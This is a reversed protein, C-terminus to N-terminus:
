ARRDVYAAAVRTATRSVHRLATGVSARASAVEGEFARSARLLGEARSRLTEPLPGLTDLPTPMREIPREVDRYAFAERHACLYSEMADLEREWDSRRDTGTSM